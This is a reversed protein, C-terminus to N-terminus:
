FVLKILPIVASLLCVGLAISLIVGTIKLAVWGLGFLPIGGKL